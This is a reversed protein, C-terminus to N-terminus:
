YNRHCLFNVVAEELAQYPYNFYRLSHEDDAQKQIQEKAVLVRFYSMADRIMMPVSGGGINDFDNAFACISHYISIPNWGSKFEIRNSEVKRKNLLDEINIPLAM